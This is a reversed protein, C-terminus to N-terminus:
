TVLGLTLTVTLRNRGLPPWSPLLDCKEIVALVPAVYKRETSPESNEDEGKPSFASLLLLIAFLVLTTVVSPPLYFPDMLEILHNIGFAVALLGQSVPAGDPRTIRSVKRYLPPFEGVLVTPSQIFNVFFARRKM